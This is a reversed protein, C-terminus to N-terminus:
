LPSRLIMNKIEDLSAVEIERGILFINKILEYNAGDILKGLPNNSEIYYVGIKM